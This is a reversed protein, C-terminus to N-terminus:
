EHYEKPSLYYRQLDGTRYTKRLSEALKYFWQKTNEFAKYSCRKKLQELFFLTSGGAGFELILDPPYKQLDDLIIRVNDSSLTPQNFTM